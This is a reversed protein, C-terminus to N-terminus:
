WRSTRRASRRALPVPRRQRRLADEAARRKASRARSRTTPRRQHPQRSRRTVVTVGVVGLALVLGVLASLGLQSRRSGELAATTALYFQKEQEVRVANIRREAGM